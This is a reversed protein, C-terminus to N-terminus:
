KLSKIRLMTEDVCKKEIDCGVFRRNLGVSVVATAGGGLFPDCVLQGPKTLREVLDAMGSESQGWGHHNKDPGVSKFVDFVYDKGGFLLIPKWTTDINRQWIKCAAGPTMYALTWRYKLHECLREFVEPLYSQGSMVAVLPVDKCAEALESFVSLFQEPYPPDTIVADPKIGSKFLDACSCVRIDCVSKLEKERAKSVSAAASEMTKRATSNKMEREAQTVTKKGSEIDALLDPAERTITKVSVVMRPSVNLLKAAKDTSVVCIQATKAPRGEGLNALKAAVMARQSENLHRRRLNLSIVFAVPDGKGDWQSVKPELQFMQCARYRNRGDLIRGDTHLIVPERQGHEQMDRGLDAIDNEAMMPFIESIPHFELLNSM